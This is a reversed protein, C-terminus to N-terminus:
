VHGRYVVIVVVRLVAVRYASSRCELNACVKTVCGKGVAALDWFRFSVFVVAAFLSHVAPLHQVVWFYAMM